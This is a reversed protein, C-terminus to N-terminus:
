ISFILNINFILILTLKEFEIATYSNFNKLNKSIFRKYINVYIYLAYIYM